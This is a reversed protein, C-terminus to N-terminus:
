MASSCVCLECEADVSKIVHVYPCGIVFMAFVFVDACMIFEDRPNVGEYVVGDDCVIAKCVSLDNTEGHACVTCDVLCM